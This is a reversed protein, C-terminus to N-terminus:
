CGPVPRGAKVDALEKIASSLSTVKVLRLGAPVHTEAESCNEAPTLFVTAGANRAAVLKFPIGGIPSVNGQDDIEGTGAVTLGGNLDGPTLKDVVALAFMLGASPGGIDSLSITIKFPVDAHSAPTIGLFGQKRDPNSGLKIKLDRPAQNGTRVVIDVTQGPKTNILANRVALASAVKKGDVTVLKDGPKIRRDAPSHSVVEQAVVSIPYHLYRLASVEADSQSDKFQQVNQQEVQEESEGPTFYDERPALAYKGSIWMGLAAFLTVDNTLSVTVMRLQGNTPFTQKGSVAVVQTGDVSSLTDYTPGPGLAVYPVQVFGGILGLVVVVVLSFVLTWTRRSLRRPQAIAPPVVPPQEAVPDTEPAAVPERDATTAAESEGHESM